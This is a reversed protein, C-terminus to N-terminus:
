DNRNENENYRLDDIESLLSAVSQELESIRGAQEENIKYLNNINDDLEQFIPLMKKTYDILDNDLGKLGLTISLSLFFVLASNDLFFLSLVFYIVVFVVIVIITNRITIGRLKNNM